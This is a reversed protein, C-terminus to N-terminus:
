IQVSQPHTMSQCDEADSKRSARFVENRRCAALQFRRLESPIL